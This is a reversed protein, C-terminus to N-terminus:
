RMTAPELNREPKSQTDCKDAPKYPLARAFQVAIRHVANDINDVRCIHARRIFDATEANALPFSLRVTVGQGVRPRNQKARCTFAAGGSSIDVMLGQSPTIEFDNVFRIQEQCSLRQEKRREGTKDM